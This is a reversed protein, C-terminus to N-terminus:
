MRRAVIFSSLALVIGGFLLALAAIRLIDGTTPASSPSVRTTVPTGSSTAPITPSSTATAAKDAPQGEGISFTRTPSPITGGNATGGGVAPNPGGYQPSQGSNPASASHNAGQHAVLTSLFLAMGLVAAITGIWRTVQLTRSPRRTPQRLPTVNPATSPAREATRSPRHPAALEGETPLLFSRPLAPEPMARLLMRVQRLEERERTCMECGALHEDLAAQEEPALMGDLAASLQEQRYEPSEHLRRNIDETM